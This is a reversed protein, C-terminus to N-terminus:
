RAAPMGLLSFYRAVAQARNAVHLKRLINNVHFKVTTDSLVLAQAITRNTGGEALLRVVELERPTLLGAFVLRDDETTHRSRREAAAIAPPTASEEEHGSLTILTDAQSISLANLRDLFRRMADREEILGRRIEAREYLQSLVSAFEELGDRDLVDLPINPGRDAHITGIVAAGSTIPAVVYAAWGVIETLRAPVRQNNAAIRVLAARRRRVVDTEVLQHTLRVPSEGLRAVVDSALDADIEPDDGVEFHAAAPVLTRVDITSVLVRKFAGSTGLTRATQLLLESPSNFRALSMAVEYACSLTEFRKTARDRLREMADHHRGAAITNGDAALLADVEALEAQVRRLEDPERQASV